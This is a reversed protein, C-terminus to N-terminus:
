EHSVFPLSVHFRLVATQTPMPAAIPTPTPTSVPMPSAGYLAQIAAIDDSQQLRKITGGTYSGYMMAARDSASCTAPQTFDCPHKLGLAHGFEHAVVSQMDVGINTLSTTWAWAPDIQMDFETGNGLSNWYTCTMALVSGAQPYWGVTNQGDTVNQCAGPAATTSNGGTFRWAGLTGWSDAAAAVAGADGTLTAPKGTPNYSWNTTRNSWRFSALVYQAAVQADVVPVAGPFQSLVSSRVADVQAAFNGTGDDAMMMEISVFSLQGERPIALLLDTDHFQSTVEARAAPAQRTMAFSLCAAVIVVLWLIRGMAPRRDRFFGSPNTHM